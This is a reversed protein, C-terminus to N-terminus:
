SSVSYMVKNVDIMFTERRLTQNPKRNPELYVRFYNSSSWKGVWLINNGIKVQRKTNKSNINEYFNKLFLHPDIDTAKLERDYCLDIRGLNTHELDFVSWDFIQLKM